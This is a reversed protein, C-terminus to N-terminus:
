KPSVWKQRYEVIVSSEMTAAVFGDMDLEVSKGTISVLRQGRNDLKEKM